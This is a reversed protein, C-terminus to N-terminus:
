HISAKVYCASFGDALEFVEGESVLNFCDFFVEEIMEPSFVGSDDGVRETCVEKQM